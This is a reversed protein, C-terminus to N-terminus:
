HLSGAVVLFPSLSYWNDCSPCLCFVHLNYLSLTQQLYNWETCFTFRICILHRASIGTIWSMNNLVFILAKKIKVDLSPSTYDPDNNIISLTAESPNLVLNLSVHKNIESERTRERMCVYLLNVLAVFRKQLVKGILKRFISPTFTFSANSFIRKPNISRQNIFLVILPFTFTRCDLYQTCDFSQVGERAALMSRYKQRTRERSVCPAKNGLTCQM